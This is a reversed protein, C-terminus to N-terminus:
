RSTKTSMEPFVVVWGLVAFTVFYLGDPNHFM